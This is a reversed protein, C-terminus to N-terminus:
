KASESAGRREVTAPSQTHNNQRICIPCPRLGLHRAAEESLATREDKSLIHNPNHYYVKDEAASYVLKVPAQITAQPQILVQTTDAQTTAPSSTSRKELGLRIYCLALWGAVMLVLFASLSLVKNILESSGPQLRSRARLSPL